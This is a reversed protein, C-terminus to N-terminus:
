IKVDICQMFQVTRKLDEETGWLKTRLDIDSPWIRKRDDSHNPCSQLIHEPTQAMAGCSCNGSPLIGLKNLHHNLRCHGTRLRFIKTQQSRDLSNLPDQDARYGQNLNIWEERHLSRQISKAEYYTLPNDPQILRSGEKALKDAIENGQLGVHAPVWQLVLTANERLRHILILIDATDETYDSELAQLASLSDSFIVVKHCQKRRELIHSIAEKIAILEAKYNTCRRGGSFTLKTVEGDTYRIYAGAGGDKVAENASGDTYIHTWNDPNYSTDIMDETYAKLETPLQLKSTVDPISTKIEAKNAKLVIHDPFDLQKPPLESHLIDAYKRM